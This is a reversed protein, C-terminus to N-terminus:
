RSPSGICARVKAWSTCDWSPRVTCGRLMSRASARLFFRQRGRLRCQRSMRELGVLRQAYLNQLPLSSGISQPGDHEMAHPTAQEHQQM